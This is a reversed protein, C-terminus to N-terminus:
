PQSLGLIPPQRTKSISGTATNPHQDLWTVGVALASFEHGKMGYLPGRARVTGIALERGPGFRDLLATRVNADTARMSGCLHIKVTGRSLMFRQANPWAQYIRGTWWATTMTDQGVAMGMAVIAECVLTSGLPATELKPLLADNLVTMSERVRADGRSTDLVVLASQITGPDVSFLLSM